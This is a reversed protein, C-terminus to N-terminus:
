AKLVRWDDHGSTGSVEHTWTIKRYTLSVTELHTFHAQGPDQCNPMEAKIDVIIADDLEISFYHEQTGTASTRYWDIKCKSMREGSTLAAYL